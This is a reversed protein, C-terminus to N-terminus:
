FFTDLPSLSFNQGRPAAPSSSVGPGIEFPKVKVSQGLLFNSWMEFINFIMSDLTGYNAPTVKVGGASM